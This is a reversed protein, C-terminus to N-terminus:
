PKGSEAAKRAGDVGDQADRQRDRITKLSNLLETRERAMRERMEAPDLINFTGRQSATVNAEPTRADRAELWWVVRSGVEPNLPALDFLIEGQTSESGTTRMGQIEVSGPQGTAADSDTGPAVVQWRLRVGAVGHDDRCTFRIPWRAFRTADKDRSPFAATVVPPKDPIASITWRSPATSDLGDASRLSIWWSGDESATFRGSVSLGDAAITLPQAAPEALGAVMTLSAENVERSVSAQVVVVTGAPVQLDGVTSTGDPLALYEPHVLRLALDKVVPRPVVKVPVWVEWHHDGAHPRIAIDEIAQKLTGRFIPKAQDAVRELRLVSTRGDAGRVSATAQAPVESAADVEIEVTVPDGRGVLAPIQVSVIHTATPYHASMFALRRLFAGAIGPKWAALGVALILLSVGLLVARKAPRLEWAQRHDVNAAREDTEEALAQVLGPSAIGPDGADMARLLQVTSILRGALEPHADELRMALEDDGRQRRLEAILGAWAERGVLWLLTGTMGLRAAVDWWGGGFARTVFWYDVVLWGLLATVLVAVLRGACRATEGGRARGRLLEIRTRILDSM